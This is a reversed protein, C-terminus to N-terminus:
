WHYEGNVVALGNSDLFKLFFEGGTTITLMVRHEPVLASRPPLAVLSPTGELRWPLAPPMTKSWTIDKGGTVSRSVAVSTVADGGATDPALELSSDLLLAWRPDASFIHSSEESCIIPISHEGIQFFFAVRPPRGYQLTFDESDGM